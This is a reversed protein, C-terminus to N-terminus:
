DNIFAAKLPERYVVQLGFGESLAALPVFTKKEGPFQQFYAPEAALPKTVGNIVITKAGITIAVKLDDKFVTVTNTKADWTYSADIANAIDAISVFTRSKIIVPSYNTIIEKGGVVVSIPVGAKRPQVSLYPGWAAATYSKGLEAYGRATPHIDPEPEGNENKDNVTTYTIINAEITSAADAIRIDHGKANFEKVIEDLKANLRSQGDKLFLATSEPVGVYTIQGRLKLFPIPLYQNAVVIRAKPQLKLVISLVSTLEEGYVDILQGINATLEAQADTSLDKFATTAGLEKVLGLFDNGGTSVLVLEAEKLDSVLAATGAFIEVARPDPLDPQIDDANVKKGEVAATLWSNLADTRLGIVGHNAFEARYGRFLAQEYVHEAFGYPVSKLTFGKQYGAALSDGLVVIDYTTRADVAKDAAVAVSTFYSPLPAAALLGTVVVASATAAVFTKRFKSYLPRVDKQYLSSLVFM